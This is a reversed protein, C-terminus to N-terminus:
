SVIKCKKHLISLQPGHIFSYVLFFFTNLQPKRQEEYKDQVQKQDNISFLSISQYFDRGFSYIFTFIIFISIVISGGGKKNQEVVLGIVKFHSNTKTERILWGRIKGM